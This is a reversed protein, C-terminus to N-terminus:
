GGKLLVAAAATLIAGVTGGAVLRSFWKQWDAQQELRDLRTPLDQKEAAEAAKKLAAVAGVLGVEGNGLLIKRVSAADTAGQKSLAKVEALERPLARIDKLEPASLSHGSDQQERVAELLSIIREESETM